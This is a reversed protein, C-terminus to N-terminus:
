IIDFDGRIIAIPNIDFDNDGWSPVGNELRVQKFKEVPRFMKVGPVQSTKLFSKLDIMKSSGDSFEVLLIHDKIHKVDIIYMGKMKNHEKRMDSGKEFLNEECHIYKGLPRLENKGIM